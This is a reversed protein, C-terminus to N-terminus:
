VDRGRDRLAIQGALDRDLRAALDGLQLVRDVRHDVLERGERVLDRADGALDAGLPDEAALGVDGADGPRPLVEGVVDVEHRVVERCSARGIDVDRGRDRLAIQGALDRDLRAALDGLQLVRDVRHDVLERGERVLDRADGALDAGFSLEAALRLDLADAARPLDAARRAPAHRGVEGVLHPVDRVDGGGDRVAVETLLDGDIGAALDRLQLVRDVRHDVLEGGERVLDRADGAFDAGFSLEAALRLHLADAARP